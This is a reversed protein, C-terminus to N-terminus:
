LLGAEADLEVVAVFFELGFDAVGLQLLNGEHQDAALLFLLRSGDADARARFAVQARTGQGVELGFELAQDFGLGGM